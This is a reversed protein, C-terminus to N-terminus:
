LKKEGMAREILEEDDDATRLCSVRARLRSLASALAAFTGRGAGKRLEKKAPSPSFASSSRDDCDDDVEFVEEEEEEEESSRAARPSSLLSSSPALHQRPSLPLTRSCEVIVTCSRM